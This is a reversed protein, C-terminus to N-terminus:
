RPASPEFYRLMDPLHSLFAGRNPTHEPYTRFGTM